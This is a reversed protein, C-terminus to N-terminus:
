QSKLAGALGDIFTTTGEGTVLSATWVRGSESSIVDTRGHHIRIPTKASVHPVMDTKNILFYTRPTVLEWIAPPVNVELPKESCGSVSVAVDPLSLVCLSFDSNKVRFFIFGM